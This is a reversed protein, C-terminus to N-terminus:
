KKEKLLECEDLEQLFAYFDTGDKKKLEEAYQTLVIADRRLDCTLWLIKKAPVLFKKLKEVDKELQAIKGSSSKSRINEEEAAKLLKTSRENEVLLDELPQLYAPSKGMFGMVPKLEELVKRAAPGSAVVNVKKEAKEPPKDKKSRKKSEFRRPIKATKKIYNWLNESRRPVGNNLPSM